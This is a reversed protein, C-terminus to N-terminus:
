GNKEVWRDNEDVYYRAEYTNVIDRARRRKMYLDSIKVLVFVDCQKLYKWIEGNHTIYKFKM